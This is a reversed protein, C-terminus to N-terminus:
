IGVINPQLKHYGREGAWLDLPVAVLEDVEPVAAPDVSLDVVCLYGRCGECARLALHPFEPTAYSGLGEHTSERCGPCRQRPAPRARMCMGCVVEFSRGDGQPRLAGVQPPRSCWPCELGDPYGAAYPQLVGRAFFSRLDAEGETNWYDRVLGDFDAVDPGEAAAALPGPGSSRVLELLSPYAERLTSWDPARLGISAQWDAVAAYFSLIQRTPPYREALFRARRARLAWGRDPDAGV